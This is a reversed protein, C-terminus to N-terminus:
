AAKAEAVAQTGVAVAEVKTADAMAVAEAVKPNDAVVKDPLAALEVPKTTRNRLWEVIIGLFSIVMPLSNAGVRVFTQYKEPVIPLIPTIDIGNFNQLFTLIAGLGTLMRAFLLTESKKFLVIEAPEIITFFGEAWPKTKLWARGQVAYWLLLATFIALSVLITM